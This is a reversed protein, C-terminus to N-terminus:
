SVLLKKNPKGCIQMVFPIQAGLKARKENPLYKNALFRSKLIGLRTRSVMGIRCVSSNLISSYASRLGLILWPSQWRCLFPPWYIVLHPESNEQLELCTITLSKPKVLGFYVAKWVLIIAWKWREGREVLWYIPLNFQGYCTLSM